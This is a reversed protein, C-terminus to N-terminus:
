PVMEHRRASGVAPDKKIFDWVRGDGLRAVDLHQGFTVRCSETCVVGKKYAMGVERKTVLGCQKIIDAIWRKM